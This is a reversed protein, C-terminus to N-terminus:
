SPAGNPVLGCWPDLTVAVARDESCKWEDLDIGEDLALSYPCQRLDRAGADHMDLCEASHLIHVKQEASVARARHETPHRGVGVIREVDQGSVLDTM